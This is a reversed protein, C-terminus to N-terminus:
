PNYKLGVPVAITGSKYVNVYLQITDGRGEVTFIYVDLIPGGGGIAQHTYRNELGTSHFKPNSFSGRSVYLLREDKLTTLRQLFYKEADMSSYMDGNKILLPNNATYGYTSDTTPQVKTFFQPNSVVCSDFVFALFLFGLIVPLIDRAIKRM